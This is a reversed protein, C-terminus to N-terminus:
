TRPTWSTDGLTRLSLTHVMGSWRRYAEALAWDEGDAFAM